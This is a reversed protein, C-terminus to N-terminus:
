LPNGAEAPAGSAFFNVRAREPSAARAFQALSVVGPIASMPLPHPSCRAHVWSVAAAVLAWRARAPIAALALSRAAPRTLAATMARARAAAIRRPEAQPDNGLGEHRHGKTGDGERGLM